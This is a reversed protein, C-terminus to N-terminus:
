LDITAIDCNWDCCRYNRSTVLEKSM